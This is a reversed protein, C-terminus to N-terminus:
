FQLATNKHSEDSLVHVSTIDNVCQLVGIDARDIVEGPL